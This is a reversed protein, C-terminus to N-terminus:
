DGSPEGGKPIEQTIISFNLADVRPGLKELSEIEVHLDTKKNIEAIATNLARQRFNAWVALPAKRIVDGAEDKVSELGLLKRVDELTIRKAGTAAHKKAWGYLRVSYKSRLGIHASNQAVYDPLRKKARMWIRRFQPSFTLYVERDEGKVQVSEVWRTYTTVADGGATQEIKIRYASMLRLATKFLEQGGVLIPVSQGSQYQELATNLIQREAKPLLFYSKQVGIPLYKAPATDTVDLSM